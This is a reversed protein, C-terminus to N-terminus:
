IIAELQDLGTTVPFHYLHNFNEVAQSAAGKLLNDICSFLYLKEGIVTFSIHTRATGVVNKLSLMERSPVASVEILPYDQYFERFANVVDQSTKKHNLKAYMGAIIGRRVPLLSTTFFPDISYDGLTQAYLQIEPLHQHVGVKYPLCDGDVESFLQSESAKKGAGTTGSKADIVLSDADILSCSLLPLLGMLVATAFCGPNSILTAVERKPKLWPSLGYQATAVLQSSTHDLGYWEQYSKKIDSTNLRFAGSLDIVHVGQAIIKPALEVSVEAPTALFIVQYDSPNITGSNQSNFVAKVNVNPHRKLLRALELGSYGSGGVIAVQISLVEHNHM